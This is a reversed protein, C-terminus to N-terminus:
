PNKSMKPLLIWYYGPSKMNGAMFAANEGAGWYIDGRVIGKIAGGTDQAILLHRYPILANKNTNQPIVTSMWIPAGLPIFQPDVALSRGASLSTQESGLPDKNAILKFFVYSANQNLISNIQDPHQMLWARITQMSIEQKTLSKNAILVKGIATYPRGNDTAYNIVAQQGNPYQIIASGQIQAFFVDILSNCWGLIAAKNEIAGDNIAQRDPYPVLTNKNLQGIITLDKIVHNFNSLKVIILDNPIGYIPVTYENKKTQSVHLLPLYYGTFLGRRNLNNTVYYPTFWTQFFQRAILPTPNTIQTAAACITQWQKNAGSQPFSAFNDSPNLKLIEPCSKQFALLAQSQDDQNWDPLRNYTTKILIPHIGFKGYYFFLFCTIVIILSFIIITKINIYRM